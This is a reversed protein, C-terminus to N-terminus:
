EYSAEDKSYVDSCTTQTEDLFLLTTYPSVPQLRTVLNVTRSQTQLWKKREKLCIFIM